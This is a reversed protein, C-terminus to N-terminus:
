SVSMLVKLASPDHVLEFAKPADELSLEHTVISELSLAGSAALTVGDAYDGIVAARPNHITLEKHYLLYYPLGTGGGTITGYALIEGGIGVMEIAQALTAETGVAEVVLVPGQRDTVEDLVESAQDPGAVMSAGHEIALERKWESRTIGVVTAGRLSFLQTLLQGAVGLGIVAVVRGPFVEVRKVAHVCTGLVQLLGSSRRSVSDPVSILRNEPVLIRETFAGDVDRGLLGGNRCLHPRGALCLDCWGCAVGPDVLVRGGREFHSGSPASTVVGVAEHGMIRPYTVPIKGALIKTDTGCIGVQEVRVEHLNPSSPEPVDAVEISGPGVVRVARM